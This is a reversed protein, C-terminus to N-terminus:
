LACRLQAIEFGQHDSARGIQKSKIEVKHINEFAANLLEKQGIFCSDISAVHNNLGACIDGLEDSGADSMKSTFDKNDSINEIYENIERVRRSMTRRVILSFMVIVVLM